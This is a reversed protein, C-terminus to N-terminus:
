FKYGLQKLKRTHQLRRSKKREGYPNRENLGFSQLHAIADLYDQDWTWEAKILQTLTPYEKGYYTNYHNYLLSTQAQNLASIKRMVDPYTYFNPGEITAYIEKALPDPDWLVGQGGTEYVVPIQGYDVPAKKINSGLLKNIVMLAGISGVGVIAVRGILPIKKWGTKLKSQAM